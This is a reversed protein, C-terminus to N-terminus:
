DGGRSSTHRSIVDLCLHTQFVEEVVMERLTCVSESTVGVCLAGAFVLLTSRLSCFSSSTCAFWVGADALSIHLPYSM